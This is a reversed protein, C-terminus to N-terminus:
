LGLSRRRDVDIVTYCRFLRRRERYALERDATITEDRRHPFISDGQLSTSLTIYNELSILKHQAASCHTAEDQLKITGETNRTVCM